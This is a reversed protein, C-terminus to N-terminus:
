CDTNVSQAELFVMMGFSAAQSDALGGSHQRHQGVALADSLGKLAYSEVDRVGARRSVDLAM